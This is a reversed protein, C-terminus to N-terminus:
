DDIPEFRAMQSPHVGKGTVAVLRVRAGPAVSEHVDTLRGLAANDAGDLTILALSMPGREDTFPLCFEGSTISLVTGTGTLETWGALLSHGCCSRRPPFWTRGCADCRVGLARGNELGEFYTRLDGLPHTYRLELELAVYRGHQSDDKSKSV